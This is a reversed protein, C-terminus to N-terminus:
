EVSVLAEVWSRFEMGESKVDATVLYNGAPGDARARLKVAGSERAALRISRQGDLLTLGENTRPTVHFTRPVPSHNTLRVEFEATKGRALRTGIM